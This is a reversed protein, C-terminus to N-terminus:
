PNVLNGDHCTLAPLRKNLEDVFADVKAKDGSTSTDVLYLWMARSDDRYGVSRECDRRTEADANQQIWWVVGLVLVLSLIGSALAVWVFRPTPSNM